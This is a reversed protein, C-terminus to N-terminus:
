KLMREFSVDFTELIVLLTKFAPERLGNELQSIGAITLRTKESLKRQGWGLHERIEKLNKGFRVLEEDRQVTM